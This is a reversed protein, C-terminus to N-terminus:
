KLTAQVKPESAAEEALWMRKWGALDSPAPWAPFTAPDPLSELYHRAEASVTDAVQVFPKEQKPRDRASVAPGHLLVCAGLWMAGALMKHNRMVDESNSSM